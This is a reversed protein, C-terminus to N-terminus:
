VALWMIALMLIGTLYTLRDKLAFNVPDDNMEGRHALIAARGYWYLLLPCLGWLYAPKAYLRTAQVSDIYLVIIVLAAFGSATAMTELISMDHTIYARGHLKKQLRLLQLASTRKLLALGLFFFSAFALLWNSVIMGCAEAGAVIRLVYLCALIVVDLFLVSKIFFTYTLSCLFYILLCVLFGSPLISAIVSSFLLTGAFLWPAHRLPLHGSAFPRNKKVPHQRDSALDCCDNIIYIASACASLSLFALLTAAITLWSFDHAMFMPIFVLLNKTWQHVRMVKAWDRWAPRSAPLIRCNPNVAQACNIAKPDGGAVIATRATQWVPADVPSDGIYDFGKYGFTKILLDAKAQGKLNCTATSAFSDAVFKLRRAVADAVPKPSATALYVPRGAKTAAALMDIVSHNLPYLPVGSASSDAFYHKFSLRGSYMLFPISFVTFPQHRVASFVGEWLTDTTFITGDIDAILPTNGYYKNYIM